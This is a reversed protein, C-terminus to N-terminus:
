RVEYIVIGNECDMYDMSRTNFDNMEYVYDILTGGYYFLLDRLNGFIWM